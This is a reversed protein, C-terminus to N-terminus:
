RRDLFPCFYCFVALEFVFHLPYAVSVSIPHTRLYSSYVLLLLLLLIFYIFFFTM